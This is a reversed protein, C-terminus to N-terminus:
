FALQVQLRAEDTSDSPHVDWLHFYDAQVKVDHRHVYVNLGGGAEYVHSVASISIPRLEGVRGVVEVLDTIMYGAQFFWGWAGRTLVIAPTGGPLVLRKKNPDRRLVEASLSLGKWRFTLDVEAHRYDVRRDNPFPDEFTSRSRDTNSNYAAAVGVALKPSEHRDLDGEEYADFDGFPLLELRGVALLGPATALRNRGDGGFVGVAYRLRKGLGLLDTSHAYVGVDRDLNLEGVVISRDVMQLKGSSNVRQRDFPVKMQGFRVELDRHVKWNGYADRLVLRLDRETDLNSFALQVDWTLDRTLLHGSLRLRARRVQFGDSPERAEQDSHTYRLQIRGRLKISASDDATQVTFGDGVKATVIAQDTVVPAVAGPAAAAERSAAEREEARERKIAELEEELRRLREEQATFRADAGGPAPGPEQARAVGAFVVVMSLAVLSRM